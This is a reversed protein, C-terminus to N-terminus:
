CASNNKKRKKKKRKKQPTIRKIRVKWNICESLEDQIHQQADLCSTARKYHTIGEVKQTNRGTAKSFFGTLMYSSVVSDPM